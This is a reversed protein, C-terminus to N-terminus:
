STRGPIVALQSVLLKPRTTMVERVTWGDARLLDAYAAVFVHEEAAVDAFSYGNIADPFPVHHGVRVQGRGPWGPSCLFGATLVRSYEDFQAAPYRQLLLATAALTVAQDRADVDVM